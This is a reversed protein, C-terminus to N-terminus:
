DRKLEKLLNIFTEIEEQRNMRILNDEFIEVYWKGEEEAEDSDCSILSLNETIDYYYYYFGEGEEKTFGLDILQQETM